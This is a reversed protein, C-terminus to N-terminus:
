KASSPDELNKLSASAYQFMGKGLNVNWAPLMTILRGSFNSYQTIPTQLLNIAKVLGENGESGSAVTSAFDGAKTALATFENNLKAIDKQEREFEITTRCLREVRDCLTIIGSSDLGNLTTATNKAGAETVLSIGTMAGKDKAITIVFTEGGVFPGFTFTDQKAATKEVVDVSGALGKVMENVKDYTEKTVKGLDYNGKSDKTSEVQAIFANFDKLLASLKDNVGSINETVALHNSELTEDNGKAYKGKISLAQITSSGVKIEKEKVKWGGRGQATKKLEKAQNLLKDANVTIRAFFDKIRQWLSALGKKINEWLKKVWDVVSEMAIQTARVRSSSSGFSEMAPMVNMPVGLRRGISEIAIEAIEAADQSLGEGSEVSEAMKGELEGLTEIDSVASDVGDNLQQIEGQEEAADELDQALETDMETVEVDQVQEDELAFNLFSNRM